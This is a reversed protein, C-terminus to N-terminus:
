FMPNITYSSLQLDLKFAHVHTAPSLSKLTVQGVSLEQTQFDTPLLLQLALSLM